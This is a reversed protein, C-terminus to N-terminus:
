FRPRRQERLAAVGEVFDRGGMMESMLATSEDVSAGVDLRLLDDYLQRKTARVSAPSVETALHEAVEHVRKTLAKRSPLVENVLGIAAADDAQLARGTLLLDAAHTVGVLRPLVWSLGYEAPLGLKPTATALKAGSVAYRLDCYAALALGVGACAGNIAAIVPLRLGWHWVFDHDLETRVGYGPHSIDTPDDPLGPDYAGAEAHKSLAKADAGVCFDSGEGTVIVVRVAPDAEADALCWRYETHMRGTWANHRHPRNLTVTAVGGDVEYRTAKLEYDM